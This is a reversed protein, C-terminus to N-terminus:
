HDSLWSSLRQIVQKSRAWARYANYILVGLVLGYATWIYGGYGHMQWWQNMM